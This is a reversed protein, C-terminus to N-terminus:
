SIILCNFYDSDLFLISSIFVFSLNETEGTFSSLVHIVVTRFSRKQFEIKNKDKYM